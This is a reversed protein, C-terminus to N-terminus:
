PTDGSSSAPRSSEPSSAAAMLGRPHHERELYMRVAQRVEYSITRDREAALLELHERDSRAVKASIHTKPEAMDRMLRDYVVHAFCLRLTLSHGLGQRAEVALKLFELVLALELLEQEFTGLDLVFGAHRDTTRGIPVVSITATSQREDRSTDAARRGSAIRHSRQEGLFCAALALSLPSRRWRLRTQAHRRDAVWHGDPRVPGRLQAPRAWRTQAPRGRVAASNGFGNESSAGRDFLALSLGSLRRLRPVDANGAVSRHCVGHVWAM